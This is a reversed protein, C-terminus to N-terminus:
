MIKTTLINSQGLKLGLLATPNRRILATSLPPALKSLDERCVEVWALEWDHEVDGLFKDACSWPNRVAWSKEWDFDGPALDTPIVIERGNRVKGAINNVFQDYGNEVLFRIQIEGDAIAGCIDQKAEDEAIGAEVVLKLADLLRVYKRVYVM